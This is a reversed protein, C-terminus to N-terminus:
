FPVPVKIKPRRRPSRRIADIASPEIGVSFLERYAAAREAPNQGLAVYLSHPTLLADAVSGSNGHYSSWEYERPHDVMRARMPNLEIYRSCALLHRESDILCSWYRDEWVAGSRGRHRNFRAGYVGAARHMMRAAARIDPPTLLLHVHNTMLVYAHIQCSTRRASERLLWWYEEFDAAKRFCARRDHGRQVIHIPVGPCIIRRKRAM